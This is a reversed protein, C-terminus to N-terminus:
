KGQAKWYADAAANGAKSNKFKPHEGVYGQEHISDGTHIIDKAKAQSSLVHWGEEGAAHDQAYSKSTTVWDGPNIQHVHGPVARYLPVRAEPNGRAKNIWHLSESDHADEYTKYYEPHEYVDPYATNADHFRSAEYPQHQMRYDGFQNENLNGSM